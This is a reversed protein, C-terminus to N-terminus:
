ALPRCVRDAGFLIKIAIMGNVKGRFNKVAVWNATSILLRATDPM